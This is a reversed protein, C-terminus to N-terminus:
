RKFQDRCVHEQSNAAAKKNEKSFAFFVSPLRVSVKNSLVTDNNRLTLTRASKSKPEQAQIKALPIMPLSLRKVGLLPKVSKPPEPPLLVQKASQLDGDFIYKIVQPALEENRNLQILLLPEYLGNQWLLSAARQILVSPSKILAILTKSELADQLNNTIGAAVLSPLLRMKEALLGDRHAVSCHANIAFAIKSVMRADSSNQKSFYLGLVAYALIPNKMKEAYRAVLGYRSLVLLSAFLLPSGHFDQESLATQTKSIVSTDLYKALGSAELLAQPFIGFYRRAVGEVYEKFCLIKDPMYLVRKLALVDLQRLTPKLTLFTNINPLYAPAGSPIDPFQDPNVLSLGFDILRVVDGKIAINLPKLDRHAYSSDTRSANGRHLNHVLWCVKIALDYREVDNVKPKLYKELAQGADLMVLYQKDTFQRKRPGGDRYLGLDYLADIEKQLDNLDSESGNYYLIKVVYLNNSSLSRIYKVKGFSGQGVIARPGRGLAYVGNELKIYSNELTYNGGVCVEVPIGQVTFGYKIKTGVPQGEFYTVLRRKVELPLAFFNPM